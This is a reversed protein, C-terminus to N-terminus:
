SPENESIGSSRFSVLATGCLILIAASMGIITRKMM